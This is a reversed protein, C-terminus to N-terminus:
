GCGLLCDALLLLAFLLASTCCKFLSSLSTLSEEGSVGSEEMHTNISQEEHLCQIDITVKSDSSVIALMILIRRLRYVLTRERREKKGREMGHKHETSVTDLVMTSQKGNSNKAKPCHGIALPRPEQCTPKREANRFPYTGSGTTCFVKRHSARKSPTLFGLPRIARHAYPGDQRMLPLHPKGTCRSKRRRSNKNAGRLASGCVGGRRM